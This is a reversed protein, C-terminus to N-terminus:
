GERIIESYEIINDSRTRIITNPNIHHKLTHREKIDYILLYNSASTKYHCRQTISIENSDIDFIM